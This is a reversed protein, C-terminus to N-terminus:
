LHMKMLQMKQYILDKKKRLKANDLILRLDSKSLDGINIFKKM